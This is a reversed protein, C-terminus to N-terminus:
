STEPMGFMMKTPEIDWVIGTFITMKGLYQQNYGWIIYKDFIM